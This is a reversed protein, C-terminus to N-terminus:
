KDAVIGQPQKNKAEAKKKKTELAKQVWDDAIKIQKDYEEKNDALDAKERVLLNEYAMADDYDPDIQLAKDLAALGADIVPVWKAKLEEKVKKDKLPGPDEPKMGANVRATGYVPYWRSWAIFGMSYYADKNNPDVAVLKDYWQQAEDWKKQNLNLSAISAIAITNKPEVDLVKKFNDFAGQAMKNNDPSDVGPIYQQMYATALYLRAASFGPDLDCASKFHEVAEPYQAATFARVGQNLQDRARLQNCSINL